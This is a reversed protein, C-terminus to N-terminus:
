DEPTPTKKLQGPPIPDAADEAGPTKKLQGPPLDDQRNEDRIEEVTDMGHQSRELARTLGPKAQEPAQDLVSQLKLEHRALADAVEDLQDPEQAAIELLEGIATEYGDLAQALDAPRGRQLLEDAEGLRRDAFQLLLRTDVASSATLALAARELGRKLGYLSDGPLAEGSAYAVGVTGALLAVAILMSALTYAPRWGFGRRRNAPVPRPTSRELSHGALRKWASTRFAETPTAPALNRHAVGAAVLLPRLEEAQDPYERLCEELSREHTQIRQLCHDLIEVDMKPAM